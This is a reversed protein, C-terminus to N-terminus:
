IIHIFDKSHASSLDSVEGVLHAEDGLDILRQKAESAKTKPIALLLGGSTQADFILKALLPDVNPAIKLNEEVYDFNAYTGAPILGNKAYDLVNPMLPIETSHFIIQKKSAFAMEFGHGGLGFGTIDTAAKIKLEQIVKAGNKNLRTAYGYLDKEAQEFGEWKAKVATGLVGTGIPKTLILMDGTNLASNKAFHEPNVLGTVALGFKLQPDELTHGGANVAGAESLKEAAGYLIEKIVELPFDCAAFSLINMACYPEAGMAYIDSLANAAACQGFLQPDNGLPSLVDVSQVLAMDRPPPALVFADEHNGFDSLVRNNIAEKPLGKLLQEM